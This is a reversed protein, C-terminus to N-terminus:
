CRMHEKRRTTSACATPRPPRQSRHGNARDRSHRLPSRRTHQHTRRSRPRRRPRRRRSPPHQHPIAAVCERHGPRHHRRNQTPPHSPRCRITDASPPRGVEIITRQRLRSRISAQRHMASHRSRQRPRPRNTEIRWAASRHDDDGAAQRLRRRHRSRASRHGQARRVRTVRRASRPPSRASRGCRSLQRCGRRLAAGDPEPRRVPGQSSRCRACPQDIAPRTRHRLRLVVVLASWRRRITSDSDGAAERAAQFAVLTATDATLPIAGQRVCWNGFAELDCRYAARTNASLQASLWGELTSQQLAARRKEARRRPTGHSSSSMAVTTLTLM